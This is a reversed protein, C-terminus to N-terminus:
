EEELDDDKVKVLEAFPEEEVEDKIANFQLYGDSRVAVLDLLVDHLLFSALLVEELIVTITVL